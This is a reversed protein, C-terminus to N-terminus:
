YSRGFAAYNLSFGNGYPLPSTTHVEVLAKKKVQLKRSLFVIYPSLGTFTLFFTRPLIWLVAEQFRLPFIPPM